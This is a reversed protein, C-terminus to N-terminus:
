KTQYQKQRQKEKLTLLEQLTQAQRKTVIRMNFNAQLHDSHGVLKDYTDRLLM